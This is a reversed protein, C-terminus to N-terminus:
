FSYIELPLKIEGRYDFSISQSSINFNSQKIYEIQNLINDDTNKIANNLIYPIMYVYYSYANPAQGFINNYEKAFDANIEADVYFIPTESKPIITRASPLSYNMDGLIPIKSTRPDVLLQKTLTLMGDGMSSIYIYDPDASSVKAIISKFDKQNSAYGEKMLVCGGKKKIKDEFMDAYLSYADNQLYIIAVAGEGFMGKSFDTMKETVCDTNPFVRFCRNTIDLLDMNPTATAFVIVDKDKTQSAITMAFQGGCVIFYRIGRNYLDKYATMAEKTSSKCDSIIYEFNLNEDQKVVELGNVCMEGPLSAFGTLPAIVGIKIVNDEKKGQCGCLMGFTLLVLLIKKM